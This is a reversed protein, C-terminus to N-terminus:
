SAKNRGKEAQRENKTDLVHSQIEFPRQYSTLWFEESRGHIYIKATFNPYVGIRFFKRVPFKNV